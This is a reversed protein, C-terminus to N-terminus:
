YLYSNFCDAPVSDVTWIYSPLYFYDLLIDYTGVIHSNQTEAVKQVLTSQRVQSQSTDSHWVYLRTTWHQGPLARLAAILFRNTGMAAQDNTLRGDSWHSALIRDPPWGSVLSSRLHTRHDNPLNAYCASVLSYSLFIMLWPPLPSCSSSFISVNWETNAPFYKIM